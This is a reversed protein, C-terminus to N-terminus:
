GAVRTGTDPNEVLRYGRNGPQFRKLAIWRTRRGEQHESVNRGVALVVGRARGEEVETIRIRRGSSRPDDDAWIQGVTVQVGESMDVLTGPKAM